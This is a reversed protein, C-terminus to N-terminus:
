ALDVSTVPVSAGGYLGSVSDRRALTQPTRVARPQQTVYPSAVRRSEGLYQMGTAGATGGTAVSALASQLQMVSLVGSDKLALLARALARAQGTVALLQATMDAAEVHGTASTRADARVAEAEAVAQARLASAAATADALTEKALAVAEEAVAQRVTLVAAMDAERQALQTERVAAEKHAAAVRERAGAEVRAAEERIADMRQAAVSREAALQADAAASASASRSSEAAATALASEARNMLAAASDGAVQVARARAEAAALAATAKREVEAAAAERAAAAAEVSAAARRAADSAAREVELAAGEAAAEAAAAESAARAKNLEAAEVALASGRAAVNAGAVAVAARERELQAAAATSASMEATARARALEAAHEEARAARTAAGAEEAQAQVQAARISLEDGEARLQEREARVAAAEATVNAAAELLATAKAHATDVIAAAAATAQSRAAAEAEAERAVARAALAAEQAAVAEAFLAASREGAGARLADLEAQAIRRLVAAGEEARALVEEAEAEAAARQASSDRELQSRSSAIHEDFASARSTFGREAEELRFDFAEQREALSTEAATLRARSELERARIEAGTDALSAELETHLALTRTRLSEVEEEQAAVERERLASAALLANLKSLEATYARTQRDLEDERSALDAVRGDLEVRAAELEIARGALERSRAEAEDRLKNAALVLETTRTDARAESAEISAQAAATSRAHVAVNAEAIALAASRADLDAKVSESREAAQLVAAELGARSAASTRAFLAAEERARAERSSVEAVGAELAAERAEVVALRAAFASVDASQERHAREVEDAIDAVSDEAAQVADRRAVIEIAVAALEGARDECEVRLSQTAAERRNCMRFIQTCFARQVRQAAAARLSDSALAAREGDLAATAADLGAKLGNIEARAADMMAGLQAEGEALAAEGEARELAWADRLGALEEEVEARRSMAEAQVADLRALADAELAASRQSLEEAAAAASAELEDTREDLADAMEDLLTERQTCLAERAAVDSARRELAEKQVEAAELLVAAQAAAEAAAADNTSARASTEKAEDLERAAAKASQTASAMAANATATAVEAVDAADMAEAERAAAKALAEVASRNAVDIARVAEEVDRHAGGLEGRVVELEALAEDYSVRLVALEDLESRMSGSEGQLRRLESNSGTLAQAMASLKDAAQASEFEYSRRARELEAVADRARAEAAGARAEAAATAAASASVEAVRRDAEFRAVDAQELAGQLRVVKAESAELSARLSRPSSPSLRGAPAPDLAGGTSASAEAERLRARVARIAQLAEDPSLVSASPPAGGRKGAKPTRPGTKSGSNAGGMILRELRGKDEELVATRARAADLDAIAAALAQSRPSGLTGSAVLTDILALGLTSAGMPPSGGLGFEDLSGSAPPRHPSSLPPIVVSGRKGRLPTKYWGAGPASGIVRQILPSLLTLAESSSRLTENKQVAAVIAVAESDETTSALLTLAASAQAAAAAQAKGVHVIQAQLDDIQAKYKRLLAKDTDVLTNLVARNLVSRCATGFKLTSVSEDRSLSAPSITCLIATTANGGISQRLLRTLKSNRYPIHETASPLPAMGERTPHPGGAATVDGPRPGRRMMGAGKRASPAGVSIVRRSPTGGSASGGSSARAGAGGLRLGFASEASGLSGEEDSGDEDAGSDAGTVSPPGGEAVSSSARRRAAADSGALKSIVLSLASLSKNIFGGERLREGSTGAEAQRESGALDVLNLYSVRVDDGQPSGSGDAPPPAKSEIVMRFITHSRSSGAHVGTAGYHRNAEGRAVVELVQERTVVIEETLNEIIAGKAPDDRLVRLNRGKRAGQLLDGIEENYVELYSVRVLFEGGAASGAEISKFVDHIARPVIGPDRSTGLMSHTKGSGTQGYAFVTGNFGGIAMGVVRKAVGNYVEGNSSQVGFVRDFSYAKRSANGDEADVLTREDWTWAPGALVEEDANERATPPRVRIFVQIASPAVDASGVSSAM